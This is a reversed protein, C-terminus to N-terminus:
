EGHGNLSLEEVPSSNNGVVDVGLEPLQVLILLEVHSRINEPGEGMLPRVGVAQECIADEPKTLSLFCRPVMEWMNLPLGAEGTVAPYIIAENVVM